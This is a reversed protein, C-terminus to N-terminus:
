VRGVSGPLRPAARHCYSRHPLVGRRCDGFSAAAIQGHGGVFALLRCVLCGGGPPGHQASQPFDGVPAVHPAGQATASARALGLGGRRVGGLRAAVGGRGGPPWPGDLCNGLVVSEGGPAILGPAFAGFGSGVRDLCGCRDPGIRGISFWCRNSHGSPDCSGRALDHGM